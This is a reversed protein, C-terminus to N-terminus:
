RKLADGLSPDVTVPDFQHSALGLQLVRFFQRKFFRILVDSPHLRHLGHFRHLGHLRHISPRIEGLYSAPIDAAAGLATANRAETTRSHVVIPASM